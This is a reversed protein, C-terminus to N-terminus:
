RPTAGIVEVGRERARTALRRDFTALPARHVEAVDLVYCDPLTLGTSARLSAVRGPQAADPLDVRIGLSTLADSVGAADGLRAPGVLVEALTVPHVLLDGGAVVIEAARRHHQDARSLMAIVVSADLVIM